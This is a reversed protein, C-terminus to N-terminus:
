PMMSVLFIVVRGSTAIPPMVGAKAPSINRAPAWVIATEPAMVFDGLGTLVIFSKRFEYFGSFAIGIDHWRAFDGALM